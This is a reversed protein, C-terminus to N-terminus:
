LYNLNLKGVQASLALVGLDMDERILVKAWPM